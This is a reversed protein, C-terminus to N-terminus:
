FYSNGEFYDYIESPLKEGPTRPPLLIAGFEDYGRVVRLIKEEDLYNRDFELNYIELAFPCPNVIKIEREDGSSHPLIPEFELSNMSFELRPELGKGKCLVMLRQSSQGMRITVREEYSREESPMFKLQINVKQGPMLTGSPPMIEFIKPRQLGAEICQKKKRKLHMPTFKEEKPPLYSANWDCRVEKHNHIQVTIIKCEGCKVDGFEVVDSSIKLDPMTINAKLRINIVPGNNILIPIVHQILGLGLNAGRPDFTIVFDVSEENPLNKVKELDILFGTKSFNQREIDFSAAMKGM